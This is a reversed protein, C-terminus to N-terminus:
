AGMTILEVGRPMKDERVEIRYDSFRRAYEVADKRAISVVEGLELLAQAPACGLAAQRKRQDLNSDTGVHKFIFLRRLTMVGKSASRDQEFMNLMAEWFLELDDESFGTGGHSTDAFHPSVFGKGVYLGYPVISKRGMTRLKIEEHDLEWQQLEASSKKGTVDDAVAVRTVTIDLPLISEISRSFSLQVPGRVQGANPGTSMVAGFTRVDYFTQCM